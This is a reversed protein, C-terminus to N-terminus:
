TAFYSSEQPSQLYRGDEGESLISATQRRVKPTAYAEDTLSYKVPIPMSSPRCIPLIFSHVVVYKTVISKPSMLNSFHNDATSANLQKAQISHIVFQLTSTKNTEM